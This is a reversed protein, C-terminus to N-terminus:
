REGILNLAKVPHQVIYCPRRGYIGYSSNKRLAHRRGRLHAVKYFIHCNDYSKGDVRRLFPAGHRILYPLADNM